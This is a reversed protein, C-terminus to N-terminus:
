KRSCLCGLGSLESRLVLKQGRGTGLGVGYQQFHYECMNAWPGMHTAGDYRAPRSIGMDACFDCDPLNPVVVVTSM